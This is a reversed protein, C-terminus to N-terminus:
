KALFSPTGQNTSQQQGGPTHATAAKHEGTAVPEDKKETSNTPRGVFYGGPVDGQGNSM